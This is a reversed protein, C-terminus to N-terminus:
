AWSRGGIRFISPEQATRMFIFDIRVPWYQVFPGSMLFLFARARHKSNSNYSGISNLRIPAQVLEIRDGFSTELSRAVKSQVSQMHTSSGTGILLFKTARCKSLRNILGAASDLGGSWLAIEKQDGSLRPIRLQIHRQPVKECNFEFTWDDETLWYLVKSLSQHIAHSEYLDLERLPMKLRIHRASNPTHRVRGDAVYVAAAIDMLDSLAAPLPQESQILEAYNFTLNFPDGLCSQNQLVVECPRDSIASFVVTNIQTRM